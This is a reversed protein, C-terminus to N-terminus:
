RESFRMVAIELGLGYLPKQVVLVSDGGRVRLRQGEVEIMATGRYNSTVVPTPFRNALANGGCHRISRGAEQGAHVPAEAGVLLVSNGEMEIYDRLGAFGVPDVHVVFSTGFPLVTMGAPIYEIFQLPSRSLRGEVRLMAVNARLAGMRSTTAAAPQAKRSGSGANVNGIAVRYHGYGLLEAAEQAIDRANEERARYYVRGDGEPRSIVAGAQLLASIAENPTVQLDAPEVWWLVGHRLVREKASGSMRSVGTGKYTVTWERSGAASTPEFAAELATEDYELGAPVRPAFGPEVVPAENAWIDRVTCSVELPNLTSAAVPPTMVVQSALAAAAICQSHLSRYIFRM